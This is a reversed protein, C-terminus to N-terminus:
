PPEAPWLPGAVSLDVTKLALYYAQWARANVTQDDIADVLQFSVLIPTMVISYGALQKDM